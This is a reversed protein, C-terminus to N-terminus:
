FVRIDSREVPSRKSDEARRQDSASAANLVCIADDVNHDLMDRVKRCVQLADRAEIRGELRTPAPRRPLTSRSRCPCGFALAGIARGRSM